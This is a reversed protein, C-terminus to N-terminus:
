QVLPEFLLSARCNKMEMDPSSAFVRKLRVDFSVVVQKVWKHDPLYTELDNVEEIKLKRGTNNVGLSWYEAGGQSFEIGAEGLDAGFLLENGPQFLDDLEAATWYDDLSSGQSTGGHIILRFFDNGPYRYIESTMWREGVSNYAGSPKVQFGQDQDAATVVWALATEQVPNSQIEINGDLRYWGSFDALATPEVIGSDKKCAQLALLTCFIFLVPFYRM